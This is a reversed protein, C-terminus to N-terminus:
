SPEEEDKKLKKKPTPEPPQIYLIARGIGIADKAVHDPVELVDGVKANVGGPAKCNQIYQIKM